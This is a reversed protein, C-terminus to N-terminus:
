HRTPTQADSQIQQLIQRALLSCVKSLHEYEITDKNKMLHLKPYTKRFFDVQKKLINSGQSSRKKLKAFNTMMDHQSYVATELEIIQNSHIPNRKTM